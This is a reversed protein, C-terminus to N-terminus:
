DERYRGHADFRTLTYRVSSARHMWVVHFRLSGFYSSSRLARLRRSAEPVSDGEHAMFMPRGPRRRVLHKQQQQHTWAGPYPKFEIQVTTTGRM